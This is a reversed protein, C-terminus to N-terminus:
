LWGGLTMRGGWLIARQKGHLDTDIFPGFGVFFHAVPHMLFPAFANIGVAHNRARLEDDRTASFSYSLGIRPWFSILHTLEVNYGIRPGASARTSRADGSRAHQVGVSLGLSLNEIIFFDAAPAVTVTLSGRKGGRQSTRQISMAADSSLVWQHRAAFGVLDDGRVFAEDRPTQAHLPGAWASGILMLCALM